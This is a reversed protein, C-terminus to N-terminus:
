SSKALESAVADAGLAIMFTLPADPLFAEMRKVLEQKAAESLSAAGHALDKVVGQYTLLYRRQTDLLELSGAPGHGPYLMQVDALLVRARELNALWDGIHEDATYSHTGNFVLDGVFAIRPEDEVIWITNADCDGGPGFDHARYTIGDFTLAEGDRVIQTPYTWAEIWEEKFVPKWQKYKAAETKEMVIKVSELAIIPTDFGRTLETIGAVHDPHAHTMLVALLPKGFGEMLSLFENRFATSESVTLTGDIAVVGHESEVLYANAFLGMEGSAHIHLKRTILQTM